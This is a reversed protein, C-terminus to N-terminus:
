PIATTKPDFRPLGQELRSVEEEIRQLGGLLGQDGSYEVKVRELLARSEELPLVWTLRSIATLRFSVRFKETDEGCNIHEWSEPRILTMYEDHYSPGIQWLGSIAMMVASCYADPWREDCPHKLLRRILEVVSPMDPPLKTLPSLLSTVFRWDPEERDLEESILSVLEGAHTIEAKQSSTLTEKSYKPNTRL